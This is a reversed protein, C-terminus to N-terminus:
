NIKAGSPIDELTSALTLQKGKDAALLMGNSEVGRLKVPKLNCVAIVKKGILDELEYHEAIGSVVQRKEEGIELQLVLLRDADPHKEAKIIEAVRLDLKAFDDITISDDQEEEQEQNEEPMIVQGGRKEIFENNKSQLIELEKEIDLRPFMVEAKAEGPLFLYM